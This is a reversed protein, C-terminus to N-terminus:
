LQGMKAKEKSIKNQISKKCKEQDKTKSCKTIGKQLIAIKGRQAKRKYDNM